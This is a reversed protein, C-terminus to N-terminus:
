LCHIWEEVNNTSECPIVLDTIEPTPRGGVFWDEYFSIGMTMLNTDYVFLVTGILLLVAASIRALFPM